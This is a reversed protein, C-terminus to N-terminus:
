WFRPPSPLSLDSTLPGKVNARQPCTHQSELGPPKPALDHRVRAVGHVTAREAERHMPNGLCSCQLRNGNGEGPSRGPGPPSGPDGASFASEKGAASSPLGRTTWHTFFGGALSSVQTQDSPGSPGRSFFFAVRELIRAQSIGHVSSGPPSTWLTM